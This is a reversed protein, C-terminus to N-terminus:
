EKEILVVLYYELYSNSDHHRIPQYVLEWTIERPASGLNAFINHLSTGQM